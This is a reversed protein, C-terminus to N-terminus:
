DEQGWLTLTINKIDFGIPMPVEVPEGEDNVGDAVYEYERAPIDIQAAYLEALGPIVGMVLNGFKDICIDIRVPNDREFKNLALTLEENFTISNKNVSYDIFNDLEKKQYAIKM